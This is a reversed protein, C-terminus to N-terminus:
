PQALIFVPVQKVVVQVVSERKQVVLKVGIEGRGPHLSVEIGHEIDAVVQEVGIQRCREDAKQHADNVPEIEYQAPVKKRAADTAEFMYNVVELGGKLHKAVIKLNPDNSKRLTAAAKRILESQKKTLKRM